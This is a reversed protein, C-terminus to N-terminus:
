GADAARLPSGARCGPILAWTGDADKPPPAWAATRSGRGPSKSRAAAPPAARASSGPSNPPFAASTVVSPSRSDPAAAAAAQEGAEVPTRIPTSDRSPRLQWPAFHQQVKEEARRLTEEALERVREPSFRGHHKQRGMEEKIRDMADAAESRMEQILKKGRMQESACCAVRRDISAHREGVTQKLQASRRMDELRAQERVQRLRNTNHEAFERAELHMRAKMRAINEEHNKDKAQRAQVLDDVTRRESEARAQRAQERMKLREERKVSAEKDFREMAARRELKRVLEETTAATNNVDGIVEEIKADFLFKIWRQEHEVAATLRQRQIQVPSLVKTQSRSGSSSSASTRACRPTNQV